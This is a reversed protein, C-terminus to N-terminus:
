NNKDNNFEFGCKPCKCDMDFSDPNIEEASSPKVDEFFNAKFSEMDIDLLKVDQFEEPKIDYTHMYEYLGEGTITAYHSNISLLIEAAEKEDKAMIDVVPIEGITYGAPILINKLILLRNHGDMIKNNWVFVPAIWGLKIIQQKLKEADEKRLEKLSGQFDEFDKYHLTRSGTCKVQIDM